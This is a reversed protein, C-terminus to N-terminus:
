TFSQTIKVTNQFFIKQPKTIEKTNKTKNNGDKDTHKNYKHSIGYGITAM